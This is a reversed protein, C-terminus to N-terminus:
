VLNQHYSNKREYWHGDRINMKGICRQKMTSEEEKAREWCKQDWIEPEVIIPATKWLSVKM